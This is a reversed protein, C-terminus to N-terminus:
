RPPVARWKRGFAVLRHTQPQIMAWLYDGDVRVDKVYHDWELKAVKRDTAFQEHTFLRLRADRPITILGAAIQLAEDQSLEAATPPDALRDVGRYMVDGTDADLHVRADSWHRWTRVRIQWGGSYPQSQDAEAQFYWEPRSTRINGRQLRGTLLRRVREVALKPLDGPPTAPRKPATSM